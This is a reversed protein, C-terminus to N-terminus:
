TAPYDPVAKGAADRFSIPRLPAPLETAQKVTVVRAQPLPVPKPGFADFLFLAAAVLVFGQAAVLWLKRLM